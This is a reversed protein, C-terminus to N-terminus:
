LCLGETQSCSTYLGATENNFLVAMGGQSNFNMRVNALGDTINLEGSVPCRSGVAIVAGTNTTVTVEGNICKPTMKGSLAINLNSGQFSYAMKFGNYAADIGKSNITGRINGTMAASAGTIESGSYVIDAYVITLGSLTLNTNTNTDTYTMSNLATTIKAPNQYTGQFTIQATGNWTAAGEKCNTYTITGTYNEPNADQGSWSSVERKTGGGTCATTQDLSGAMHRINQDRQINLLAQNLLANLFAKSTLSGSHKIGATGLYSPEVILGISTIISGAVPASNSSTLISPPPPSSATGGGGGCSIVLLATIVISITLATITKTEVTNKM